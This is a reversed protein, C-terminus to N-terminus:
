KINADVDSIIKQNYEELNDLIDIHQQNAKAILIYLQEVLSNNPNEEPIFRSKRQIALARTFPHAVTPISDAFSKKEQNMREQKKIEEWITTYEEITKPTPTTGFVYPHRRKMKETVAQLADQFLVKSTNSYVKLMMLLLFLVDGLEEVVHENKGSYVADILEYVEDMIYKCMSRVTQNKDFPCGIEEDFLAELVELLNIIDTHYAVVKTM